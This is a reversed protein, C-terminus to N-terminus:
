LRGNNEGVKISKGSCLKLHEDCIPFREQKENFVFWTAKKGCIRNPNINYSCKFYLAM